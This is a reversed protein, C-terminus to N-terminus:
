KKKYILVEYGKTDMDNIEIGMAESTEQLVKITNDCKLYLQERSEIQDTSPDILKSFTCRNSVLQGESDKKYKSQQNNYKYRNNM